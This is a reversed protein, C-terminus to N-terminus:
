PSEWRRPPRHWGPSGSGGPSAALLPPSAKFCECDPETVSSCISEQDNQLLLITTLTVSWGSNLVCKYLYEYSFIDELFNAISPKLSKKLTNVLM